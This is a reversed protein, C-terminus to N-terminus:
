KFQPMTYDASAMQKATVPFYQTPSTLESITNVTTINGGEMEFVTWLNGVGDPVRYDRIFEVVNTLYFVGHTTMCWLHHCAHRLRNTPAACGSLFRVVMIPPVSHVSQTYKIHQDLRCADVCCVWTCCM